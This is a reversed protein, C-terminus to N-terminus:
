HIYVVGTHNLKPTAESPQGHHLLRLVRTKETTTGRSGHIWDAPFEMSRKRVKETLVMVVEVITRKTPKEHQQKGTEDYVREMQWEGAQNHQFAFTRPANDLNGAAEHEAEGIAEDINMREHAWNAHATSFPLLIGTWLVIGISLMKWTSIRSHIGFLGRLRSGM